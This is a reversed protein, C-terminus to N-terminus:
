KVFYMEDLKSPRKVALFLAGLSEQRFAKNQVRVANLFTSPLAGSIFSCEAVDRIKGTGSNSTYDVFIKRNHPPTERHVLQDTYDTVSSPTNGQYKKSIETYVDSLRMASTSYSISNVTVSSPDVSYDSVIDKCVAELDSKDSCGALALIFFLVASRQM